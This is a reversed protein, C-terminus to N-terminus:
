NSLICIINQISFATYAHNKALLLYVLAFFHLHTNHTTFDFFLSHPYASFLSKGSVRCRLFKSFSM